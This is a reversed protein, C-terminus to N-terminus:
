LEMGDKEIVVVSLRDFSMNQIAEAQDELIRENEYSLNEGIIMHYHGKGAKVLERAIWDPSHVGDTLLFLGKKEQLRDLFPLKRGHLSRLEYDKWSRGIKSFLYQFSSIGPIVELAEKGLNSELFDLLSYFGPDGSVVVAIQKERYSKQIWLLLEHLDAGLIYQEKQLYQFLQLNRKGGVIADAKEVAKWGAPLIYDPDGPGIGVVKVKM